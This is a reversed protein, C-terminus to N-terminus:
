SGSEEELDMLRQKIQNEELQLQLRAKKRQRAEHTEAHGPTSSELALGGGARNDVELKVRKRAPGASGRAAVPSLEDQKAAMESRPARAVALEEESEECLDIVEAARSLPNAVLVPSSSRSRVDSREPLEMTAISAATAAAAAAPMVEKLELVVTV